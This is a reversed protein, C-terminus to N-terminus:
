RRNLEVWKTNTNDWVLTLANGAGLVMDGNINMNTTAGSITLPQTNNRGLLVAEQGDISGNTLATTTSATTGGSGGQVLLLQRLTNSTLTITGGGAITQLSQVTYNNGSGSAVVGGGGAVEQLMMVIRDLAKEVNEMNITTTNLFDYIQTYPTARYVRWQKTSAPAVTAEVATGPDGGTITYEVGVNLIVVAGTDLDTEEVVVQSNNFLTFTIPFTTTSGNGTYVEETVLNSLAM